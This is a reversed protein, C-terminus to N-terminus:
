NNPKFDTANEIMLRDFQNVLITKFDEFSCIERLAFHLTGIWTASLTLAIEFINASAKLEGSDQLIKLKENFKRIPSGRQEELKIRVDEETSWEIQFYCFYSLKQPERDRAILSAKEILRKRLDSIKLESSEKQPLCLKDEQQSIVAVLLDSKTKSIGIFQAKQLALKM